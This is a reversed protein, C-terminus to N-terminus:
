APAIMTSNMKTMMSSFAPASCFDRPAHIARNAPTGSNSARSVMRLKTIKRMYGRDTPTFNPM